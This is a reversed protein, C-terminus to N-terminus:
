QLPNRWAFSHEEIEELMDQLTSRIDSQNYDPRENVLFAAINENTSQFRKTVAPSDYFNREWSINEEPIALSQVHKSLIPAKETKVYRTIDSLNRYAINEECNDSFYVLTEPDIPESDQHQWSAFEQVNMNSPRMVDFCNDPEGYRGEKIIEIYFDDEPWASVLFQEGKPEGGLNNITYSRTELSSM